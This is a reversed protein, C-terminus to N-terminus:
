SVGVPTLEWARGQGLALELEPGPVPRSIYFGQAVDCGMRRLSLLQDLVEVGEAVVTMGLSHALDVVSRVIADNAGDPDLRAVFSRDIKLEDVPYTQLYSLSSYGTGFDDVSVTVGMARLADLASRASGVDDILASETIEVSLAEAPLGTEALVAAVETRFGPRTLQRASVNVAVRLAPVSLERRWLAVQRCAERLVWSGIPVILGTQEAVPIFDAPPVVGEGPRHWRVLAEVGAIAGDSLRVAPQYHLVLESREIARHLGAEISLRSAANSRMQADFVAYPTGAEKARYMAADAEALMEEAGSAESSVAIGISGSLFIEDGGHSFPQALARTMREALGTPDGRLAVDVVVFEDGGFRGVIETATTAAQLRAALTNLLQDGVSHGHSDNILKFRDLDLFAVVVVTEGSPTTALAHSLHELVKARNPLGTLGDHSALHSLFDEFEKRERVMTNFAEAVRALEAPGEVPALMADQGKGSCEIAATLSRIPRSIRRRLQLGLLAVVALTVAGLGLNRWLEGWAAALAVSTPMGGVVHWGTGKVAAESYLRRVGDPGPASAGTLSRSLPTGSVATGVFRQDSGSASMIVHRAPDLVLLDIDAARLPAEAGLSLFAPDLTALLVGRQGGPGTMAVSELFSPRGTVPNTTVTGAVSRGSVARSFWPQGAYPDAVGALRPESTCVVTGDSRVLSVFGLGFHTYASLTRNCAAPDFSTVTPQAAIAAMFTPLSSLQSALGAAAFQASSGVQGVARAQERQFAARATYGIIVALSVLCVAFIAALHTGIGARTRRASRRFFTM